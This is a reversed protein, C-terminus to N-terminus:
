KDNSCIREKKKRKMYDGLLLCRQTYEYKKIYKEFFGSMSAQKVIRNVNDEISEETGSIYQTDIEQLGIDLKYSPNNRFLLLSLLYKGPKDSKQYTCQVAYGTYGCDQPLDITITQGMKKYKKM